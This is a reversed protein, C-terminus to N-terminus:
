FRTLIESMLREEAKRLHEATTSKSIDLNESLDEITVERPYEYYGKRKALEITERQRDTLISKLDKSDYNARKYKIEEIEAFSDLIDIYYQLDENEGIVSIIAEEENIFFPTDWILDKNINQGYNKMMEKYEDPVNAKLLVTHDRKESKLVSLINVFDPLEVEELTYGERLSLNLIMIKIGKEFDLRVIELIRYSEIHKLFPNMLEKLESNPSIKITVKRMNIM